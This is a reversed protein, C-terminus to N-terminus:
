RSERARQSNTMIQKRDTLLHPWHDEFFANPDSKIISKTPPVNRKDIVSLKKDKAYKLVVKRLEEHTGVFVNKYGELFEGLTPDIIVEGVSSGTRLSFHDLWRSGVRTSNLELEKLCRQLEDSFIQSKGTLSLQNIKEGADKPITSPQGKFYTLIDEVTKEHKSHQIKFGRLAKYLRKDLDSLKNFDDTEKNGFHTLAEEVKEKIEEVTPLKESKKPAFPELNNEDLERTEPM